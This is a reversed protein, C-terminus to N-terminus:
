LALTEVRLLSNEDSFNDLDHEKYVSFQITSNNKWEKEGEVASGDYGSVGQIFTEGPPLSKVLRATDTWLDVVYLHRGREEFPETRCYSSLYRLGDPSIMENFQPGYISSNPLFNLRKTRLDYSYVDVSPAGSHPIHTSFFLKGGTQPFSYEFFVYGPWLSDPPILALMNAVLTTIGTSSHGVLEQSIIRNKHVSDWHYVLEYTDHPNIADRADGSKPAINTTACTTPYRADWRALFADDIEEDEDQINEPLAATETTQLPFNNQKESPYARLFIVLLLLLGIGTIVVGKNM